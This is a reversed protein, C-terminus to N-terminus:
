CCRWRLPKLLDKHGVLNGDDAGAQDAAGPRDNEGTGAVPDREVVPRFALALGRDRADFGVERREFAVPQDVIWVAARARIEM